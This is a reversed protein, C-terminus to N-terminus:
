PKTGPQYFFNLKAILDPETEIPDTSSPKAM